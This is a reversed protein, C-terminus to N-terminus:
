KGLDSHLVAMEGFCDGPGVVKIENGTAESLQVQGELIFYMHDQVDCAVKYVFEGAKTAPLVKVLASVVEEAVHFELTLSLGEGHNM